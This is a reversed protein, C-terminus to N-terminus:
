DFEPCTKIDAFTAISNTDANTYALNDNVPKQKDEATNKNNDVILSAITKYKSKMSDKGRAYKQVLIGISVGFLVNEFFPIDGPVMNTKKLFNWTQTLFRPLVWLMIEEIRGPQEFFISNTFFLCILM